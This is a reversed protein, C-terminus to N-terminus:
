KEGSPRKLLLSTKVPVGFSPAGDAAFTFQQMRPSRLDGCGQNPAANAHYLLWNETNDVSKFFSCHGPGYANNTTSTTFVPNSLKVWDTPNLPNGGTTLSMM